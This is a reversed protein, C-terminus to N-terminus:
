RCTKILTDALQKINITQETDLQLVYGRLDETINQWHQLQQELVSINADSYDQKRQRIRNRLTDPRATFELIHFPTGTQRALQHFIEIYGIDLFTADVIVHFGATM